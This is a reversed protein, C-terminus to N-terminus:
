ASQKATTAQDLTEKVVQDAEKLIKTDTQNEVWHVLKKFLDPNYYQPFIKSKELVAITSFAETLSRKVGDYLGRIMQDFIDAMSLIQAYQDVDWNKLKKPYGTGDFKEHHQGLIKILGPTLSLNMNSLMELTHRMHNEFKLKAEPSRKEAPTRVIDIDIQSVGIDHMIAALAMSKLLSRDNYGLGLAFVVAYTSVNKSHGDFNKSASKEWMDTFLSQKSEGALVEADVVKRLEETAKAVASPEKSNALAKINDKVTAKQDENLEVLPPPAPVGPDAEFAPTPPPEGPKQPVTGDAQPALEELAKVAEDSAAEALAEQHQRIYELYKKEDMILVFFQAIGRDQYKIVFGDDILDEPSRFRIIRQNLPLYIYLSFPIPQGEKLIGPQIPFFNDLNNVTAMALHFGRTIKESFLTYEM